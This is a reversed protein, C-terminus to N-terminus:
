KVIGRKNIDIIQEVSYSEHTHLDANERVGSFSSGSVLILILFLTKM